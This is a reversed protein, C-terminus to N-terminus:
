FGGMAIGVVAFFFGLQFDLFHGDLLLRVAFLFKALNALFQVFAFPQEVFPLVGDFLLGLLNALLFFHDFGGLALQGLANFVGVAAVFFQM